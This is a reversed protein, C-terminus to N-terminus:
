KLIGATISSFPLFYKIVMTRTNILKSFSLFSSYETWNSVSSKESASGSSEGSKFQFSFGRNRDPKPKFPTPAKKKTTLLEQMPDHNRCKNYSVYKAEEEARKRYEDKLCALEKEVKKVPRELVSLFYTSLKNQKDKKCHTIANILRIIPKTFKKVTKTKATVSTLRINAKKIKYAALSKKNKLNQKHTKNTYCLKESSMEKSEDHTASVMGNYCDQRYPIVADTVVEKKNWHGLVVVPTSEIPNITKCEDHKPELSIQDRNNQCNYSLTNM